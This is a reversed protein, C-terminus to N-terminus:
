AAGELGKLWGRAADRSILRRRGVTFSRPGKGEKWLDYLASRSLTYAACFNGVSYAEPTVAREEPRTDRAEVTGGLSGHM